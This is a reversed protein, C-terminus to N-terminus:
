KKYQKLAERLAEEQESNLRGARDVNPIGEEIPPQQEFHAPDQEQEEPDQQPIREHM